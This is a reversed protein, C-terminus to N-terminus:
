ILKRFCNIAESLKSDTLANSTFLSPFVSITDPANQYSPGSKIVLCKIPLISLVPGVPSYQASKAVIGNSTFASPLISKTLPSQNLLDIQHHSFGPFLSSHFFCM